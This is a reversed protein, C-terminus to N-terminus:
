RAWYVGLRSRHDSRHNSGHRQRDVGEYGQVVRLFLYKQEPPTGRRMITVDQAGVPVSCDAAPDQQIIRASSPLIPGSRRESSPPPGSTVSGPLPAFRLATKGNIRFASRGPRGLM